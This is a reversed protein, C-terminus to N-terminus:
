LDKDCYDLLGSARLGASPYSTERMARLSFSPEIKKLNDYVERAKDTEGAQLYLPVLYRQPPRYDPALAKNMEGLRIAEDFRNSLVATIGCLFDLTHQLPGPGCIERARAALQYGEEFQGLYSKARGLFALGLVNMPNYRLSKEALEHGVEYEHMMFSYVYSALALVTSNQPELEIARRVLAEAEQIQSLRDSMRHDGMDFTRAYGRWALFIGKPHREYAQELLEDAEVLESHNFMYMKQFAALAATGSYSGPHNILVDHLQMQTINIAQNVLIQLNPSELIFGSDLPVNQTGSWLHTKTHAEFLTVHVCTAEPTPIAEVQLEIGPAERERDSIEIAGCEAIGRIITEGVIRSIFAGSDGTSIQQPLLQIWPSDSGAKKELIVASRSITNDLHQATEQEQQLQIEFSHRQDRLWCEFEPDKVTLDELRGPRDLVPMDLFHSVDLSHVDISIHDTDLSVTRLDAQLLDRHDGFSRRIESLAQRLSSAGQEPARDSWLKDQLAARSRRCNPSLALLALICCAKRGRPTLDDGDSSLVKFPGIASIELKASSPRHM